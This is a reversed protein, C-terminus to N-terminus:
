AAEPALGRWLNDVVSDAYRDLEQDDYPQQTMHTLFARMYFAGLVSFTLAVPDGQRILGLEMARQLWGAVALQARVPPPVDFRDFLARIDLDSARLVMLCPLTERFFRAIIRAHERLQEDAPRAPDPGAELGAIFPPIAPPALAAFMLDQKTGFRKFLAAQSLGVREAIVGTSAHPGHEVFIQRAADLIAADSVTRPRAM